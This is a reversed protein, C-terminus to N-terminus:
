LKFAESESNIRTLCDAAIYFGDTVIVNKNNQVSHFGQVKFVKGLKFPNSPLPGSYSHYFPDATIQVWDGVVLDPAELKGSEIHKVGVSTSYKDLIEMAYALFARASDNDEGELLLDVSNKTTTRFSLSGKGDQDMIISYKIDNMRSNRKETSMVGTDETKFKTTQTEPAMNKM